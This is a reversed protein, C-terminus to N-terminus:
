DLRTVLLMDSQSKRLTGKWMTPQEEEISGIINVMRIVDQTLCKRLPTTGLVSPTTRIGVSATRTVAGMARTAM